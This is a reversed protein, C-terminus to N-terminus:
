KLFDPNSLLYAIKEDDNLKAFKEKTMGVELGITSTKPTNSGIRKEVEAKVAAKFLKDLSDIRVQAEEVDDGIEILDAFRTDLGRASLVKTIESKNQMINFERLKEELETIRMDKEAQKRQQEDLGSLSLKKEYDKQQKKLAQTVRKDSESQLLAMVEEQTYTKNETNETEQTEDVNINTNEEM